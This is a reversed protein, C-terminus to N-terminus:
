RLIIRNNLFPDSPQKLELMATGDGTKQSRIIENKGFGSGSPTPCGVLDYNLAAALMAENPDGLANNLDDAVACGTVAVGDGNGNSPSFGDAYDGFGAANEGRFQISFYTTGCNDQPYFGYPKGCTTSGIQIVELGIGRLGNIISESASCTGATTLVFVRNLNLTPLPQGANVSFGVSRTLFERPGLAQGTVPNTVQHKDNFVLAEFNQGVSQGGAVMYGLQSAIALLGGGNYRLDLILDDVGASDLQTIADFLGQEATQIHSNFSLYGTLVGSSSQMTMVNQVPTSTVIESMMTVTRSSGAGLDLVEFEHSEGAQDPFLGANLVDIGAETNTNISVGDVATIQAGRALNVGAGTAPSNPETFAITALRGSSDQELILDMGYGASQGSQNLMEWVDTPYTFHFQDKPNGSPTRENTVLSDFYEATDIGAPNTDTIEDYWLYLDNSWSRLFNNEDTQTGQADPFANGNLDTGSRPVACLGAFNDAPSFQGEVWAQNFRGGSPDGGSGGGGGGCAALLLSAISIFLSRSLFHSFSPISVTHILCKLNRNNSKNSARVTQVACNNM